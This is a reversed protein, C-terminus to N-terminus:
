QNRSRSEGRAFISAVHHMVVKACYECYGSRDMLRKKIIEIKEQTHKDATNVNLTALKIWDKKRNFLALELARRLTENSKLDFGEKRYLKGGMSMVLSKRVEDVNQKSVGMHVEVESMQKEDPDVMEHTIPDEVKDRNVYAVVNEMHQTFADQLEQEDAAVALQVEGKVIDDYEDNVQALLKQCQEKENETLLPHTDLGETVEKRVEFWNTCPEESDSVAANGLKDQIYRPSIGRMGEDKFEAMLERLADDTYNEVKKGNYLRVKERLTLGSKIKSPKIRTLLAWLSAMQLTHPAFHKHGDEVPLKTNKDYTRRYIRVDSDHHLVYPIPIVTSRDCLAKMRPNEKINKYEEDNTSGIVVVDLYHQPLKKPKLKHEQSVGLLDYLFELALKFVEEFNIVGRHSVQFEGDFNFARYDSERGYKAIKNYNVDGSLETADQSKQDKPRFSGIGVRDEESFVFREARVHKEVISKWPQTENKYKKELGRYVGRCFTCLSGEIYIKQTPDKLGSNLLQRAEARVDLPLLNLPDEHMPCQVEKIISDKTLGMLERDYDDEPLWSFTYVQGADTRTYHELGKCLLRAITSKSSGVPGWLIFLRQHQGNQVAASKLIKVMNATYSDLGYVADKGNDMPDDFFNHHVTRKKAFKNESKGHVVISHYLRQFAIFSLSRCDSVMKLYDGYPMDRYLSKVDVRSRLNELSFSKPEKM